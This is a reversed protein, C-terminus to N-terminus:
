FWLSDGSDKEKKLKVEGSKKASAPYQVPVPYLTIRIDGRTVCMRVPKGLPAGSLDNLFEEASRVKRFNFSMIVDGKLMGAKEAPSNKIVATVMVGEKDIEQLKDAINGTEEVDTITMGLWGSPKSEITIWPPAAVPVVYADTRYGPRAICMQYEKGIDTGSIDTKFQSSSKIGRGDFSIIIDQPRLGAQHAPSDPYVSVISTGKVKDLDAARAMSWSVDTLEVGIWPRPYVEARLGSLTLFVLAPCLIKWIAKM